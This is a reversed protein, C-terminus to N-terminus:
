EDATRNLLNRAGIRTALKRIREQKRQVLDPPAFSAPHEYEASLVEEVQNETMAGCESMAAILQVSAIPFVDIDGDSTLAGIWDLLAEDSSVLAAGEDGSLRELVAVLTRDTQMVASGRANVAPDKSAFSTPLQHDDVPELPDFAGVGLGPAALRPHTGPPSMERGLMTVSTVCRRAGHCKLAELAAIFAEHQGSPPLGM